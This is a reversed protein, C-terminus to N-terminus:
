NSYTVMDNSNIRMTIM